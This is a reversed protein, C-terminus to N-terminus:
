ALRFQVLEGVHELAKAILARAACFATLGTILMFSTVRMMATWFLLMREKSAHCMATEFHTFDGRSGRVLLNCAMM